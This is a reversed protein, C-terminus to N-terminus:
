RCADALVLSLRRISEAVSFDALARERGQAGLRAALESDELLALIAQATAEVDNEAVLFGTAGDTVVEPIGAHYTAVVPLGAASAEMIAVPTGETDGSVATISHQVFVRAATLEELVRRHPQAGLLTVAGAISLERVLAHCAEALPGDGIIRLRAEPRQRHVLSFARLLRDPGKKEVLRGVALIVPDASSPHALPIAASDVGCRIHHVRERPAGMGVITDLMPASVVVFASAQEFLSRYGAAHRDLVHRASADFGHFHVVLPLDLERCAEMVAVGTPGYEALVVNAGFKKFLAKYTGTGLDRDSAGAGLRVGVLGVAHRLGALGGVREGARRPPQGHILDTAGPLREAHQWIFTETVSLVGKKVISTRLSTDNV